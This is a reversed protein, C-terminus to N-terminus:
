NVKPTITNILFNVIKILTNSTLISFNSSSIIINPNDRVIHLFLFPYNIAISSVLFLPHHIGPPLTSGGSSKKVAAILSHLSSAPISISNFPIM